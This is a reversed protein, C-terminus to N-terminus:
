IVLKYGIGQYNKLSKPPLKKKFNKVFLKISNRTRTIDNEWIEHLMKEYTVVAGNMLMKLFISERKTLYFTEEPSIISYNYEDFIWKPILKRFISSDVNLLDAYISKPIKFHIFDDDNFYIYKSLDILNKKDQM